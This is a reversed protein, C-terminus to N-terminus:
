FICVSHRWMEAAAVYSSICESGASHVRSRPLLFRVVKTHTHERISIPNNVRECQTSTCYYLACIFFATRATQMEGVCM